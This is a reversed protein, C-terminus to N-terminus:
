QEGKLRALEARLREIDAQAQQLAEAMEQPPLLRGGTRAELLDLLQGAPQLFLGLERSELRGEVGPLRQYEGEVLRFGQLAPRLYEGLPDFLFYERVGLWEYLGKKPGQDEIRTARSTFEFVVDPGKGEEWVFWSRREHSPVGFAVFVDPAVRQKSDGELYYVFMNGGVYVDTRSRFFASLMSILYAILKVHFGTEGMPEGDSAPYEIEILGPDVPHLM